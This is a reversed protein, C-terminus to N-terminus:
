GMALMTPWSLEWIGLPTVGLAEHAEDELPPPSGPDEPPSM